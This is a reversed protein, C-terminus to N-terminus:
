YVIEINNNWRMLVEVRIANVDLDPIFDLLCQVFVFTPIQFTYRICFLIPSGNALTEHLRSIRLESRNTFPLCEEVCVMGMRRRESRSQFPSNRSSLIGNCCESQPLFAENSQGGESRSRDHFTNITHMASGFHEFLQSEICLCIVLPILWNRGREPQWLIAM